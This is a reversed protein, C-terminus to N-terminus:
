GNEEASQAETHPATASVPERCREMLALPLAPLGHLGITGPVM